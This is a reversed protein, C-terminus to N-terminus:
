FPPQQRTTSIAEDAETFIGGTIKILEMLWETSVESNIEEGFCDEILFQLARSFFIDKYLLDWLTCIAKLYDSLTGIRKEIMNHMNACTEKVSAYDEAIKEEENRTEAIKVCESFYETFGDRPETAGIEGEAEKLSKSSSGLVMVHAAINKALYFAEAEPGRRGLQRFTYSILDRVDHEHYLYYDAMDKIGEEQAAKLIAEKETRGDPAPSLEYRGISKKREELEENTKNIAEYIRQAAETKEKVTKPTDPSMQMAKIRTKFIVSYTETRRPHKPRGPAQLLIAGGPSLQESGDANLMWEAGGLLGGAYAAPCYADAVASPAVAYIDFETLKFKRTAQTFLIKAPLMGKEGSEPFCGVFLVSGGELFSFIDNDTDYAPEGELASLGETTAAVVKEFQEMAAASEGYRCELSNIIELGRNGGRGARKMKVFTERVCEAGACAIKYATETRKPAGILNYWNSAAELLESALSHAISKIEYSCLAEGPGGEQMRLNIYEDIESEKTRFMLINETISRYLGDGALLPNFRANAEDHSPSPCLAATRFGMDELVPAIQERCSLGPDFVMAPRGSALINEMILASDKVNTKTNNRM